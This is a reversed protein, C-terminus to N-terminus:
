CGTKGAKRAAAAAARVLGARTVSKARGLGVLLVKEWPLTKWSHLVCTQLDKGKFEGSQELARIMRELAPKQPSHIPLSGALNDNVFLVLVDTPRAASSSPVVRFPIRASSSTRTSFQKNM